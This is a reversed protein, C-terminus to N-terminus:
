NPVILRNLLNNQAKCFTVFMVWESMKFALCYNTIIYYGVDLLLCKILKIITEIRRRHCSKQFLLSFFFAISTELVTVNGVKKGSWCGEDWLLEVLFPVSKSFHASGERVRACECICLGVRWVSILSCWYTSITHWSNRIEWSVNILVWPEAARSAWMGFINLLGFEDACYFM